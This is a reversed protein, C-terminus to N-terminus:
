SAVGEVYAKAKAESGFHVVRGDRKIRKGEPTMPVWWGGKPGNVIVKWGSAHRYGDREETWLPNREVKKM